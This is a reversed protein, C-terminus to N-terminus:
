FQTVKQKIELCLRDQLVKVSHLLREDKRINRIHFPEVAWNLSWSRRNCHACAFVCNRKLHPLSNSLREITCGKSKRRDGTECKIGCWYCKNGREKLLTELWEKSIYDETKWEFKKGRDKDRSHMVVRSVWNKKISKRNSLTCKKCRVVGEEVWALRKCRMGKGNKNSCRPVIICMKKSEVNKEVQSQRAINAVAPQAIPQKKLPFNGIFLPYLYSAARGAIFVM